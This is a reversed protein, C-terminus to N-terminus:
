ETVPQFELTGGDAFLDIFLSGNQFFYRAANSLYTVFQESRSDPGCLALTMPGTEVTLAGDEDSYGLSAQNCDATVSITGDEQFTVQYLEPSKIEVQEVPSTFSIWQWSQGTLSEADSGEDSMGSEMSDAADM